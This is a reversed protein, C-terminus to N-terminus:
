SWNRQVKNESDEERDKKITDKENKMKTASEEMTGRYRDELMKENEKRENELM